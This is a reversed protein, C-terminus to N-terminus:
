STPTLKNLQCLSFCDRIFEKLDLIDFYGEFLLLNNHISLGVAMTIIFISFLLRGNNRSLIVLSYLRELNPLSLLIFPHFILSGWEIVELMPSVIKNKHGYGICKPYWSLTHARGIACITNYEPYPSVSDSLSYIEHAIFQASYVAQCNEM